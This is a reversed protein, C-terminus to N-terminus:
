TFRHSLTNPFSIALCPLRHPHRCAWRPPYRPQYRPLILIRPYDTLSIFPAHLSAGTSGPELLGTRWEVKARWWIQHGKWHSGALAREVFWNRGLNYGDKVIRHRKQSHEEKSASRLYTNGYPSNLIPLSLNSHFDSVRHVVRWQCRAHRETALRPLPTRRCRKGLM